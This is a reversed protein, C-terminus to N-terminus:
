ALDRPISVNSRRGHVRVDGDFADVESTILFSEATSSMTTRVRISVRWETMPPESADRPRVPVDVATPGGVSVGLRVAQPSPWAFPWYSRSVSLRIRHGAAFSHAAFDLPLRVVTPEGVPMPALATHGARHSLNLLGRAVLLSAGDPGVDCLRAAVLALPRDVTLQVTLISV